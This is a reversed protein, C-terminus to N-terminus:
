LYSLSPFRPCNWCLSHSNYDFNGMLLYNFRGIGMLYLGDQLVL